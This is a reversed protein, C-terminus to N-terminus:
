GLIRVDKGEPNDNVLDKLYLATGADDIKEFASGSFNYAAVTVDKTLQGTGLVKGPVVIVDGAEAHRDIKYVNVERRARSPKELDEALRKWVAVDNEISARKLADILEKLQPNKTTQM